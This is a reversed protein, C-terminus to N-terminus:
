KHKKFNIVENYSNLLENIRDDVYKFKVENFVWNNIELGIDGKFIAKCYEIYDDVTNFIEFLLKEDRAAYIYYSIIEKDKSSLAYLKLHTINKASSFLQKYYRLNMLYPVLLDVVEDDLSKEKVECIVNEFADKKVVDELQLKFLEKVYYNIDDSIYTTLRNIKARLNDNNEKEKLRSLVDDILADVVFISKKSTFFYYLIKNDYRYNIIYSYPKEETTDYGSAYAILRIANEYDLIAMLEEDNGVVKFLDEDSVSYLIQLDKYYLLYEKRSEFSDDYTMDKILKPSEITTNSEFISKHKRRFINAM